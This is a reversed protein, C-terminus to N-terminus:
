MVIIFGSGHDAEVVHGSGPFTHTDVLHRKQSTVWPAANMLIVVFISDLEGVDADDNQGLTVVASCEPSM